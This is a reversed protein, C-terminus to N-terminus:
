KKELLILFEDATLLNIKPHDLTKLVRFHRDDSVLFHANSALACDVFKNDDPDATLLDFRYYIAQKQVNPRELIANIVNSGIEPRTQREIIEQYENLIENSVVLTFDGRLFADWIPRLVSGRRLSGLLVNTDLVIKM